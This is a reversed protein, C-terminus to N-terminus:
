LGARVVESSTAYAGSDVLRDM